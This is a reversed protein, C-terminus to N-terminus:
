FVHLLLVRVRKKYKSSQIGECDSQAVHNIQM